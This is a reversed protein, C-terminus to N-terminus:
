AARPSPSNFWRRVLYVVLAAFVAVLATQVLPLRPSPGEDFSVELWPEVVMSMGCVTLPYVVWPRLRILGFASVLSSVGFVLGVVVFALEVASSGQLGVFVALAFGGPGLLVLVAALIAFGPPPLRM